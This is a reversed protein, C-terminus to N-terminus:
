GMWGAESLSNAMFLLGARLQERNIVGGLCVRVHEDPTGLVTFADSPMLGVHRGAMRGMLEARSAGKPLKLWINFAEPEGEIDLGPLADAAIKQRVASESRVFHRIADATGDEIWRTALAMCIPSPM